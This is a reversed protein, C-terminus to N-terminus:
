KYPSCIGDDRLIDLTFSVYRDFYSKKKCEDRKFTLPFFSVLNLDVATRTDCVCCLLKDPNLIRKHSTASLASSLADAASSTTNRILHVPRNHACSKEGWVTIRLRHTVFAEKLQV